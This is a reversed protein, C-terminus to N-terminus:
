HRLNVARMPPRRVTSTIKFCPCFHCHFCAFQVHECGFKDCDVHVCQSYDAVATLTRRPFPRFGAWWFDGHMQMATVMAQLGGLSGILTTNNPHNASLIVLAECGAEQVGAADSHTRMAAVIAQVGGSSGILTQNAAHHASLNGLALCGAEQVTVVGMHTRMATLVAHFGGLSGILINVARDFSLNNLARCGQGQVTVSNVHQRMAAVIAQVGGSSGILTMNAAHDSSLNGLAQCGMELVEAADVHWHHRMAVLIAEVGGLSGILTQNAAHDCSLNGLACCGARQVRAADAHTRMAAVIAEVGGLSGILTQNTVTNLLNCLACCGEEQVGAVDAHTCMAAVIAQAGGSSGILAANAESRYALSRLARCGQEQLREAQTHTQMATVIAVVAGAVVMTAQRAGCDTDTVNFPPDPDLRDALTQCCDALVDVDGSMAQMRAVVAAEDQEPPGDSMIVPPSTSPSPAPLPHVAARMLPLRIPCPPLTSTDGDKVETQAADLPCAVVHLHQQHPSLWPVLCAACFAHGCMLQRPVRHAEDFPHHCLGCELLSSAVEHSDTPASSSSSSSSSARQRKADSMSLSNFVLPIFSPGRDAPSRSRAQGLVTLSTPTLVV